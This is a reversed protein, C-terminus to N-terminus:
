EAAKGGDQPTDSDDTFLLAEVTEAFTRFQDASCHHIRVPNIGEESFPFEGNHWVYAEFCDGTREVVCKGVYGGMQPYWCAFGSRENAGWTIRAKQNIQEFTPEPPFEDRNRVPDTSITVVGSFGTTAPAAPLPSLALTYGDHVAPVMEGPILEVNLCFHGDTGESVDAQKGKSKLQRCMGELAERTLVIGDYRHQTTAVTAWFKM